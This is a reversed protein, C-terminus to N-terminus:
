ASVSTQSVLQVGVRRSGLVLAPDEADPGGVFLNGLEGVVPQERELVAALLRRPDRDAVAVADHDELVHPQDRLDEVLRRQRRERPVERDAV